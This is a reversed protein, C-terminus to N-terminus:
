YFFFFCVEILSPICAVTLSILSSSIFYQVRLRDDMNTPKIEGFLTGVFCCLAAYMILRNFFVAHDRYQNRFNRKCLTKFQRWMTTKPKPVCDIKHEAAKHITKKTGEAKSQRFREMYKESEDSAALEVLRDIPSIRNGSVVSPEGISQLHAEVENQQGTKNKKNIETLVLYCFFFLGAFFVQGKSLIVIDDMCQLIGGSPQHITLIVTCGKKAVDKLVNIVDMAGHSDLGSTPEDLVLVSPSALLELGIALRRREGGSIGKRKASRMDATDSGVRNDGCLGLNLERLTTDVWEQRQEATWQDDPLQLDAATQLTERVTQSPM